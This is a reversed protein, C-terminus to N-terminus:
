AAAKLAELAMLESAVSQATLTYGHDDGQNEIAYLTVGASTLRRMIFAHSEEDTLASETGRAIVMPIGMERYANAEGFADEHGRALAAGYGSWPGFNAAPSSLARSVWMAPGEETNLVSPPNCNVYETDLATFRGLYKVSNISEPRVNVIESLAAGTVAFSRDDDKVVSELAGIAIAAGMSSGHLDYAENARREGGNFLRDAERVARLCARGIHEFSGQRLGEIQEAVRRHTTGAPMDRLWWSHVGPAQVTYITRNLANAHALRFPASSDRRVATEDTFAPFEIVPDGQPAGSEPDMRSVALYQPRDAKTAYGTPVYVTQRRAVIDAHSLTTDDYQWDFKEYDRNPFKPNRAM